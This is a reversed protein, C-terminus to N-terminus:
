AATIWEEARPVRNDYERQIAQIIGQPTKPFNEALLMRLALGEFWRTDDESLRPEIRELRSEVNM